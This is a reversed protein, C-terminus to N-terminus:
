RAIPDATQSATTFETQAHSLENLYTHLVGLCSLSIAMAYQDGLEGFHKRSAVLEAKADSYQGMWIHTKAQGRLCQAIGNRAGIQEFEEKASGLEALARPYDHLGRHVNGLNRLCEAAGRQNELQLYAESPLMRTHIGRSRLGNELGDSSKSTGLWYCHSRRRCHRSKSESEWTLLALSAM